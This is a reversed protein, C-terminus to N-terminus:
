HPPRSPPSPPSPAAPPNVVVHGHQDISLSTGPIPRPTADPPQSLTPSTYQRPPTSPTPPTPTSPIARTQGPGRYGPLNRPATIPISPPPYWPQSSQPTDSNML